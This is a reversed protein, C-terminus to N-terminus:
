GQKRLSRVFRQGAEAFGTARCFADLSLTNPPVLIELDGCGAVRAAQAAAKVLIRGIGQRRDDANVLLTTIQATPRPARLTPYWHMVVVGSPPGWRVALLVAGSAERLAVLREALELTDVLHGAEALLTAIDPADAATATRITLGYRSTM